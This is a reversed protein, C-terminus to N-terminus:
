KKFRIFLYIWIASYLLSYLPKEEELNSRIGDKVAPLIVHKHQTVLRVTNNIM